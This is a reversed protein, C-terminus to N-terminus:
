NKTKSILELIEKNERRNLEVKINLIEQVNTTKKVSGSNSAKYSNQKEKGSM